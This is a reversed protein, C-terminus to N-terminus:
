ERSSVRHLQRMAVLGCGSRINGLDLVGLFFGMLWAWGLEEPAATADRRRARFRHFEVSRDNIATKAASIAARAITGPIGTPASPTGM